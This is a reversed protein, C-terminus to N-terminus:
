FQQKKLKPMRAAMYSYAYGKKTTHQDITM